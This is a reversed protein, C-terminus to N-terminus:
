GYHQRIYNLVSSFERGGYYSYLQPSESSSRLLCALMINIFSICVIRYCEPIDIRLCYSDLQNSIEKSLTRHVKLLLITDPCVCGLWQHTFEIRIREDNLFEKSLYNFIDENEEMVICGIDFPSKEGSKCSYTKLGSMWMQRLCKSLGNSGQSFEYIARECDSIPIIDIDIHEGLNYKNEEIEM